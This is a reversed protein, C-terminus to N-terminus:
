TIIPSVIKGRANSDNNISGSLSGRQSAAGPSSFSLTIRTVASSASVGCSEDRSFDIRRQRIVPSELLHMARFISMASAVTFTCTLAIRRLIRTWFRVCAAIQPALLPDSVRLTFLLEGGAVELTLLGGGFGTATIDSILCISTLADVSPSM